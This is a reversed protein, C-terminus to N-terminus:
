AAQQTEILMRALRKVREFYPRCDDTLGDLLTDLDSICDELISVRQSDLETESDLYYVACGGIVTDLMMLQGENPNNLQPWQTQSHAEWLSAIMRRDM